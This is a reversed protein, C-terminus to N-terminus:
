CVQHHIWSIEIKDFVDFYFSEIEIWDLGNENDCRPSKVSYEVPTRFKLAFPSTCIWSVSNKIWEFHVQIDTKICEFASKNWKRSYAM